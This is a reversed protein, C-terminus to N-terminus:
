QMIIAPPAPNRKQGMLLTSLGLCNRSKVASPCDNRLNVNLLIFATIGSSFMRTTESGLYLSM